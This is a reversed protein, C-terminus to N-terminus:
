NQDNGGGRKRKAILEKIETQSVWYDDRKKVVEKDEKIEKLMQGLNFKNKM